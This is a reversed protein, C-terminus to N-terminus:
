LVLYGLRGSFFTYQLLGTPTPWNELSPVQSCGRWRPRSTCTTRALPHYSRIPTRAHCDGRVAWPRRRQRREFMGDSRLLCKVGSGLKEGDHRLHAEPPQRFVVARGPAPTISHAVGHSSPDAYFFRTAGGDFGGNLDAISLAGASPSGGLRTLVRHPRCIKRRRQPSRMALTAVEPSSRAGRRFSGRQFPFVLLERAFTASQRTIIDM